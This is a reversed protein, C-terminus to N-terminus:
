PGTFVEHNHPRRRPKRRQQALSLLDGFIDPRLQARTVRGETAREIRGCLNAPVPRKGCVWQHVFQPTVGVLAALRAQTGVIKVAKRVPEM